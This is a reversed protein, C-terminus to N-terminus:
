GELFALHASGFIQILKDGEDGGPVTLTKEKLMAHKAASLNKKRPKYFTTVSDM